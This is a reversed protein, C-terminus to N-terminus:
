EYVIVDANHETIAFLVTDPEFLYRYTVTLNGYKKFHPQISDRGINERVVKTREIYGTSFCNTNEFVLCEKGEDLYKNVINLALTTAGMGPRATIFLNQYPYLLDNSKM